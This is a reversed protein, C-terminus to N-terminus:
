ARWQHVSLRDGSQLGDGPRGDHFEVREGDRDAPQFAGLYQLGESNLLPLASPDSTQVSATLFVATPITLLACLFRARM